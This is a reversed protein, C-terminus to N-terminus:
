GPAVAAEALPLRLEFTSGQGLGPSAATLTGGHLQALSRALALGIGLGGMGREPATEAQVFLDFVRALLAPEMGIGTDRVRVVAEGRERTVEVVITGGPPTYKAANNLLNSVIQTIRTPDAQLELEPADTM